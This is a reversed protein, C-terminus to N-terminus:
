YGLHKAAACLAEYFEDGFAEILPERLFQYVRIGENKGKNFADECINWHHVNLAKGGGTLDTVRIPYLKCSVPKPLHCREIACLCNDGEFHTYACEETGPVVPTVIDDEIDIEFFGKADVTEKGRESMLKSFVPYNKELSELEEEKLPAGYEGAICCKGKCKQYDCAFYEMFVDESVLCDGIEVIM